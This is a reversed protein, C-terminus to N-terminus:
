GLVPSGRRTLLPWEGFIPWDGAGGFLGVPQFRNQADGRTVAFAGQMERGFGIAHMAHNGAAGTRTFRFHQHGHNDAQGHVLGRINQVKHQHIVFAAPAKLGNSFSGWQTSM